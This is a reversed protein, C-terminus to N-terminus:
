ALFRHFSSPPALHTKRQFTKQKAYTCLFCLEAYELQGSIDPAGAAVLRELFDGPSGDYWRLFAKAPGIGLLADPLIAEVDVGVLAGGRVVFNKPLPDIYEFGTWVEAPEIERARAALGRCIDRSLYGTRALYALDDELRLPITTSRLGVRRSGRRYLGAFFRPLLDPATARPELMPGHVYEVWLENGYRVVLAPFGEWSGFGALAKEVAMAEAAHRFRVRKHIEDGTRVFHVDHSKVGVAGTLRRLQRLTRQRLSHANTTRSLM